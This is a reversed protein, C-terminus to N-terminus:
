LQPQCPELLGKSGKIRLDLTSLAGGRGTKRGDGEAKGVGRGTAQEECEEIVADIELLGYRFHKGWFFCCM